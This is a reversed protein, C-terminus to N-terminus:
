CDITTVKGINPIEFSVDAKLSDGQPTLSASAGIKKSADRDADWMVSGDVSKKGYKNQYSGSLAISREPFRLKLNNGNEYNIRSQVLLHEADMGFVQSDDVLIDWSSFMRSSSMEGSGKIEYSKTPTSIKM